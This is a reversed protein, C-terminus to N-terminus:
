YATKGFSHRKPPQTTRQYPSRLPLAPLRGNLKPPKLRMASNRRNLLRGITLDLAREFVEGAVLWIHAVRNITGAM